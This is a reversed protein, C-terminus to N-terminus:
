TWSPMYVQCNSLCGSKRSSHGAQQEITLVWLPGCGVGTVWDSAALASTVLFVCKSSRLSPSKFPFLCLFGIDEAEWKLFAGVGGM